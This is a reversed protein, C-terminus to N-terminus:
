DLNVTLVITNDDMVEEDEIQMNNAKLKDVINLYAEEQVNLAYESSLDNLKVEADDSDPCTIRLFYPKDAEMKEFNLTYNDITGYIKGFENESIDKVGHEELTKILIDKDLFATEFSKEIFHKESIVTVDDCPAQINNWETNNVAEDANLGGVEDQSQVASVVVSGIIWALAYPLAFVTCSM